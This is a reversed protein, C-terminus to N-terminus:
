PREKDDAINKGIIARLADRDARREPHEDLYTRCWALLAPVNSMRISDIGYRIPCLACTNGVATIYRAENSCNTYVCKMPPDVAVLDDLLRWAGSAPLEELAGDEYEQVVSRIAAAIRLEEPSFCELEYTPLQVLNVERALLKAGICIVFSRVYVKILMRESIQYDRCVEKELRGIELNIEWRTPDNARKAAHYAVHLDGRKTKFAAYNM